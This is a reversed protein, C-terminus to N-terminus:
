LRSQACHQMLSATLSVHHSHEPALPTVSHQRTASPPRAAMPCPGHGGGGAGAGAATPGIQPLRTAVEGHGTPSGPPSFVFVARAAPPVIERTNLSLRTTTCPTNLPATTPRSTSQQLMNATSPPNSPDLQASVLQDAIETAALEMQVINLTWNSCFMYQSNWKAHATQHPGQLPCAPPCSVLESVHHAVVLCPQFLLFLTLTGTTLRALLPAILLFLHLYEQTL